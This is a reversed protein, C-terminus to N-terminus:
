NKYFGPWKQDPDVHTPNKTKLRKIKESFGNPGTIQIGTLRSINRFGNLEVFQELSERTMGRVVIEEKNGVLGIFAM